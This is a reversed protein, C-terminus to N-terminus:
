DGDRREFPGSVVLKVLVQPAVTALKATVARRAAASGDALYVVVKGESIGVGSVVDMSLIAASIRQKADQLSLSSTM